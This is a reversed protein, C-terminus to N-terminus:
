VRERWSARGIKVRTLIDQSQSGLAISERLGQLVERLVVVVQERGHEAILHHIDGKALFDDMKPILRYLDSTM